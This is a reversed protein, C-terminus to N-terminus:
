HTRLGIIHGLRTKSYTTVSAVGLTCCTFVLKLLLDAVSVLFFSSLATIWVLHIPFTPTLLLKSRQQVREPHDWHQVPPLKVTQEPPTRAAPTFRESLFPPSISLLLLCLVTISRRSAM